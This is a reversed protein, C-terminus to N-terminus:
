TYADAILFSSIFSGSVTNEPVDLVLDIPPRTTSDSLANGQIILIYM